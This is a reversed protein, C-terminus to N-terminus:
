ILHIGIVLLMVWTEANYIRCHKRNSKISAKDLCPNTKQEHCRKEMKHFKVKDLDIYM